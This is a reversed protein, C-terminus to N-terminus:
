ETFTSSAGWSVRGTSTSPLGAAVGVLPPRVPVDLEGGDDLVLGDRGTGRCRSVMSAMVPRFSGAGSGDRDGHQVARTGVVLGGVGGVGQGGRNGCRRCRHCGTPSGGIRSRRRSRRWTEPRRPRPGPRRGSRTRPPRVPRPGVLSPAWTVTTVPDWNLTEGGGTAGATGPEGGRGGGARTGRVCWASCLRAEGRRRTRRGTSEERGGPRHGGGVRPGGTRYQPPPRLSRSPGPRARDDWTLPRVSRFPQTRTGLSRVSWHVSCNRKRSPAPITGVASRPAGALSVARGPRPRPGHCAM